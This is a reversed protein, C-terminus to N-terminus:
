PVPAPPPAVVVTPPPPVLSFRFLLTWSFSLVRSFRPPVGSGFRLLSVRLPLMDDWVLLDVSSSEKEASLSALFCSLTAARM